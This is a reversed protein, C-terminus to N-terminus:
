LEVPRYTGILMLRAHRQRRALYSVLDLTSYDSWHLDELLLVVPTTTAMMELAEAIARLMSERTVRSAMTERDSGTALQLIQTIWTPAETRLTQIAHAD